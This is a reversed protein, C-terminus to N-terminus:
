KIIYPSYDTITPCGSASLQANQQQIDAQMVTNTGAALNNYFSDFDPNGYGQGPHTQEYGALQSNFTALKGQYLTNLLGVTSVYLGSSTTCASPATYATPATYAPPALYTYVKPPSMKTPCNQASLTNKYSQYAANEANNYADYDSKTAGIPITVGKTQAAFQNFANAEISYCRSFESTTSTGSALGTSNKNNQQTNAGLSLGQSSSQNGNNQPATSAGNLSATNTGLALGESSNANPGKAIKNEASRHITFISLSAITLVLVVIVVVKQVNKGRFYGLRM